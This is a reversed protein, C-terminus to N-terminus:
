PPVARNGRHQLDHRTSPEVICILHPGPGSATNSHSNSTRCVAACRQDRPLHDLMALHQPVSVNSEFLSGVIAYLESWNLGATEAAARQAALAAGDVGETAM